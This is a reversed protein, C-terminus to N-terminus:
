GPKFCFSGPIIGAQFTDVPQGAPSYRYVMGCQVFDIADSIYVESTVPDVDLGYFWTLTEGSISEVFLEPESGPMISQRYVHRNLFYLTDGTGNIRLDAPTEGLEFRHIIKATRSGAEIKLLGPEEYGYPSGPYGGDTLVWLSNYKDLVMSAPQKLVEISDVVQDKETDIILIKNDYSWGNTYVFRDLRVMQETCHRSLISGTIELNEPNIITISKAYLDSVYAKTDSIFHIYRPSTFGTIKGVYEFTATNIVYIRGSNNIVVYGLSDRIVMSFAVDGLPLDNRNFFIDNAVEESGIDYYSLSANGYNWNGENTVFLGMTRGNKDRDPDRPDEDKMCAQFGLLLVAAIIFASRKM